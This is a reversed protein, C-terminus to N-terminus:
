LVSCDSVACGASRARSICNRSQVGRADGLCEKRKGCQAQPIQTLKQDSGQLNTAWWYKRGDPTEHQKWPQTSLARQSLTLGWENVSGIYCVELPTMLEQPKTWQTANTQVNYYYVRGDEARAEQWLAPGGNVAAM